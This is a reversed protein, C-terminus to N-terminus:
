ATDRTVSARVSSTRRRSPLHSAPPALADADDRGALYDHFAAELVADKDWLQEARSRGLAGLKERRARDRALAVLADALAQADGPETVVGCGALMEAVQTGPTATAVVPRGSALMNTLKSPFVLDAADARQPLVHIDAANLLENLREAPVLPWLEINGRGHAARELEARGAGDGCFVFRIRDNSQALLEAARLVTELGQKKGINGSYLVVVHDDGFRGTRFAPASALPRIRKLDVWNPFHRTRGTPVGKAALRQVMRQSISSVCDFRRMLWREVATTARRLAGGRLLGLEFAADVEFDQVHLWASAGCLRAVVLAAPAAFLPPEVVLVLQPRLRLALWLMVPLSTLAFSALHLLRKLGTPRRPVWLPCRLVDVGGIREKRYRLASYGDAVRWAPYYPPATVVTVDMGRASLWEAMEGTYRGIGTLEPAYNISYLLARM